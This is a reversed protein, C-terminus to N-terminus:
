VDFDGTQIIKEVQNEITTDLAKDIESLLFEESVDISKLIKSSEEVLQKMQLQSKKM